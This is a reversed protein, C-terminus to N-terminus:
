QRITMRAVLGDRRTFTFHSPGNYGDGGVDASITIKGDSSVTTEGVALSVYM